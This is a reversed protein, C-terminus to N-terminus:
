IWFSNFFVIGIYAGFVFLEGHSFNPLKLIRFVLTLGVAILAYLSGRVISTLLWQTILIGIDM